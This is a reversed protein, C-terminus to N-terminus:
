VLEISSMIGEPTFCLSSVASQHWHLTSYTYEKKHNFNRRSPHVSIVNRWKVYYFYDNVALFVFHLIYHFM